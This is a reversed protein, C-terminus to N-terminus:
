RSFLLCYKFPMWLLPNVVTFAAYTGFPALYNTIKGLPFSWPTGRLFSWGLYEQALDGGVRFIYGINTPDLCHVGFQYLFLCCALGLSLIVGLKSSTAPSEAM